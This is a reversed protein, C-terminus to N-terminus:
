HYLRQRAHVTRPELRQRAHVTVYSPEIGLMVLHIFFSSTFPAPSITLLVSTRLKIRLCGSPPWGIDIILGSAEEQCAPISASLASM